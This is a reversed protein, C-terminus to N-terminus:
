RCRPPGARPSCGERPRAQALNRLGRRSAREEEGAQTCRSTRAELTAAAWARQELAGHMQRVGRM